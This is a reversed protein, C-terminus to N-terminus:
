IDATFLVTKKCCLVVCCLVHCPDLTVLRAQSCFPGFNPGAMKTDFSTGHLFCGYFNASGWCFKFFFVVCLLFRGVPSFDGLRTVRSMCWKRMKEAREQQRQEVLRFPWTALRHRLSHRLSADSWWVWDLL